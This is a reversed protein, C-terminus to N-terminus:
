REALEGCAGVLLADDVRKAVGVWVGQGLQRELKATEPKLRRWAEVLAEPKPVPLM